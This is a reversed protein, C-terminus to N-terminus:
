LQDPRFLFSFFSLFYNPYTTRAVPHLNSGGKLLSKPTVSEPIAFDLQIDPNDCIKSIEVRNDSFFDTVFALTVM